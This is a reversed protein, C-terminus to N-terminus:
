FPLFLLVSQAFWALIVTLGVFVVLAVVGAAKRRSFSASDRNWKQDLLAILSGVWTVPHGIHKFLWDPYGTLREIVLSLFALAFFM